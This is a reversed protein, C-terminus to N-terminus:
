APPGAEATEAEDAEDVEDVEGSEERFAALTPWEAGCALCGIAPPTLGLLPRRGDARPGCTHGLAWGFPEPPPWTGAPLPDASM